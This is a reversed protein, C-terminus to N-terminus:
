DRLESGKARNALVFVHGMQLVEPFDMMETESRPSAIPSAIDVTLRFDFSSSTAPWPM